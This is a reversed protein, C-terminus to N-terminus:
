LYRIYCLYLLFPLKRYSFDIIILLISAPLLRYILPGPLDVKFFRETVFRTTILSIQRFM